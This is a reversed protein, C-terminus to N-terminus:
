GYGQAWGQWTLEGAQALAAYRFKLDELLRAMMQDINYYGLQIQALATDRAVGVRTTDLVHRRMNDLWRQTRDLGQMRAEYNKVTANQRINTSAASYDQMSQRRIDTMQRMSAPSRAMGTKALEYGLADMSSRASGEAASKAGARLSTVMETSYPVDQGSMVNELYDRILDSTGSGIGELRGQDVPRIGYPYGPGGYGGGPAGGGGGGGGDGGEPEEIEPM